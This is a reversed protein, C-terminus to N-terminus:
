STRKRSSSSVPDDQADKSGVNMEINNNKVWETIRGAAMKMDESTGAYSLRLGLHGNVPDFDVGPTTAVHAENLLRDALEVSNDSIRSTDAYLFFTGEAPAFNGLFVEPLNDLLIDRNTRYRKVHSDLEAFASEDTIAATAAIQSLTPVSIICNQALREFPDMLDDPLIMWGVRYGTMSFYKSFSNIVIASPSSRLATDADIDYTIGHYIEDSILRVGNDHCWKAIRALDDAPIVVGTPNPPNAMILGDPRPSIAKLDELRPIWGENAGAPLNVAEIGVSRMLNRYAPYGPNTMAIRDGHDFCTLFAMTFGLTSGVTVMVNDAAVDLNYWRKYHRAIGERLPKIGPTLTYGHSSPLKLSDIIAQSAAM